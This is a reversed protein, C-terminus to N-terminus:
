RQEEMKTLTTGPYLASYVSTVAAMLASDSATEREPFALTILRIIGALIWLLLLVVAFAILSVTLLDQAPM